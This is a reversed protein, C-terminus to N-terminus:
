QVSRQTLRYRPWRLRTERHRARESSHRGAAPPSQGLSSGDGSRANAHLSRGPAGGPPLLSRCPTAALPRTPRDRRVSRRPVRRSRPQAPRGAHALNNAARPARRIGAGGGDRARRPYAPQRIANVNYRFHASRNRYLTIEGRLGTAHWSVCRHHTTEARYGRPMSAAPFRGAKVVASLDRSDRARRSSRPSGLTVATSRASRVITRLRAQVASATDSSSKTGSTTLRSMDSGFTLWRPQM